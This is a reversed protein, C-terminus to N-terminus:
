DYSGSPQSHKKDARAAGSVRGPRPGGEGEELSAPPALPLTMRAVPQPGSAPSKLM